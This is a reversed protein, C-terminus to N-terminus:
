RGVARAKLANSRRTGNPRPASAVRTAQHVRQRLRGIQETLEDLAELLWAKGATATTVDDALAAPEIWRRM